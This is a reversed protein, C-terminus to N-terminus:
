SNSFDPPAREFDAGHPPIELDFGHRRGFIERAIQYLNQPEAASAERAIADRLLERAEEAISRRNQRARIKLSQCLAPDLNRILLATM